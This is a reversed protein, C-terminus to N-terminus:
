LNHGKRNPKILACARNIEERTPLKYDAGLVVKAIQEMSHDAGPKGEIVLPERGSGPPPTVLILARTDYRFLGVASTRRAEKELFKWLRPDLHTEPFDPDGWIQVVPWDFTTGSDKDTGTVYDPIPDIVFRCKDPRPMGETGDRTLWRCSWIHCSEPRVEYIACGVGYRQHECRTFRAKGTSSIPLLRCCLQCASCKRMTM